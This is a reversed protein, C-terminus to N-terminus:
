NRSKAIYIKNAILPLFIHMSNMASIVGSLIKAYIIKGANFTIRNKISIQIQFIQTPSTLIGFCYSKIIITKM